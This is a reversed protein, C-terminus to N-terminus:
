EPKPPAAGAEAAAAPRPGGSVDTSTVRPHGRFEEALKDYHWQLGRMVVGAAGVVIGMVALLMAGFWLLHAMTLEAYNLGLLVFAVVVLMVSYRRMREAEVAPPIVHRKPASEM